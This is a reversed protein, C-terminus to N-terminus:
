SDPSKPLVSGDRHFIARCPTFLCKNGCRDCIPRNESMKSHIRMAPNENSSGRMFSVAMGLLTNSALEHRMQLEKKEADSREPVPHQVPTPRTDVNILRVSIDGMKGEMLVTETGIPPSPTKTNMQSQLMTVISSQGSYQSSRGLYGDELETEANVLISSHDIPSPAMKKIASQAHATSLDYSLIQGHRERFRAAILLNQEHTLKEDPYSDSRINDLSFNIMLDCIVSLESSDVAVQYISVPKNALLYPSPTGHYQPNFARECRDTFEGAYTNTVFFRSKEDPKTPYDETSECRFVVVLKNNM